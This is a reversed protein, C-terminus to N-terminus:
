IAEPLGILGEKTIKYLFRDKKLPMIFVSGEYNQPKKTLEIKIHSFMSVVSGLNEQDGEATRRIMNIVLIPIKKDLAVQSLEKLYKALRTTKQLTQEEKSYEFSFLDTVNDVIVLSFNSQRIKLIHNFQESINTIRGVTVKDLLTPSLGKPRFLELLREPRFTGTTDQYFITGGESLSNVMIQLALLTKGTGSAGFIDTLICNRIGGGLISDLKELGTKIL